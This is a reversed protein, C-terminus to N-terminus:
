GGLITRFKRPFLCDKEGMVKMVNQVHRGACTALYECESCENTQNAYKFADSVLSAFASSINEPNKFEQIKLDNHELFINEYIFPIIFADDKKYHVGLLNLSNHYKDVATLHIDRINNATIGEELIDRWAIIASGIQKQDNSRFFSPNHEMICDFNRKIFDRCFDYNGEKKLWKNNHINNAFSYIVHKPTDNKFFDFVKKHDEIYKTDERLIKEINVPMLFEITMKERYASSDLIDFLRRFRDWDINDFVATATLGLYTEGAPNGNEANDGPGRLRAMKQLTPNLLIEASNNASFFDTAGIFIERFRLGNEVFYKASNYANDITVQSIADANEKNVYCGHCTHACGQLIDMSVVLDMIDHKESTSQNKYFDQELM